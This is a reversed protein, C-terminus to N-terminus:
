YIKYFKNNKILITYAHYRELIFIFNDKKIFTKNNKSISYNKYFTYNSLFKLVSYCNAKYNQVYYEYIKINKFINKPNFPFKYYKSDIQSLIKLIIKSINSNKLLEHILVPIFYNAISLEFDYRENLLEETHGRIFIDEIIDKELDRSSDRSSDKSSDKYITIFKDSLSNFSYVYFYSSIFWCLNDYRM